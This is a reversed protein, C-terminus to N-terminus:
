LEIVRSISLGDIEGGKHGILTPIIVSELKPHNMITQNFEAIAKAQADTPSPNVVKGRRVLNDVIILGGKRCLDIMPEIYKPYNPKDADLFIMDFKPFHKSTMDEILELANGIKIEVKKHLEGRTINERAIEANKPDIELSILRGHDPLTRALWVSSYGGLTGIELIRNAQILNALLSLLKGVVPTISIPPLDYADMQTKVKQLVEDQPDALDELYHQIAKAKENFPNM